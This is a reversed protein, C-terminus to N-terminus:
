GEVMKKKDWTFWYGIQFSYLLDEGHGDVLRRANGLDTLHENPSVQPVAEQGVGGNVRTSEILTAREEEPMAEIKKTVEFALNKSGM